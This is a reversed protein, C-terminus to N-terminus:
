DALLRDMAAQDSEYIWCEHLKGEKVTFTLARDLIAIRGDRSFTERVLLVARREGAAVDVIQPTQRGSRRSVEALTALAAVKGVHDSALPSSGGYHLTFEDHYSAVITPLHGAVWADAYRRVVALNAAADTMRATHPARHPADMVQSTM